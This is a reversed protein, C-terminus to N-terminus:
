QAERVICSAYSAEVIPQLGRLPSCLRTRDGRASGNFVQRVFEILLEPDVIVVDKLTGVDLNRYWLLDGLDHLTTLMNLCQADTLLTAIKDRLGAVLEDREIFLSQVRRTADSTAESQRTIELFEVIKSYTDPLPFSRGSREVVVRQIDDKLKLVDERHVCSAFVVARHDVDVPKEKFDDLVPIRRQKISTQNEDGGVPQRKENLERRMAEIITEVAVLRQRLDSRVSDAYVADRLLKDTKTAVFIFEADPQHAFILQVWQLVTYEVFRNVDKFIDDEEDCMLDAQMLLRTHVDLDVVVLFLTRASFFLSHAVQYMSQGAFDWFTVNHKRQRATGDDSTSSVFDMTFQDVGITRDDRHVLSPEELTISKIVSTKGWCSPGVACIKRRYIIEKSTKLDDIYTRTTEAGAEVVSRPIEQLPIGIAYQDVWYETCLQQGPGYEGQCEDCKADWTMGHSVFIRLVDCHDQADIAAGKELLLKVADTNEAGGAAAHLPTRDDEGEADVSAGQELLQKVVDVHGESAANHLPTCRRVQEGEAGGTFAADGSRQKGIRYTVHIDGSGM